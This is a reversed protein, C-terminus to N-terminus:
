APPVHPVPLKGTRSPPCRKEMKGSLDRPTLTHKLSPAIRADAPTPANADSLAEGTQGACEREVGGGARLFGVM